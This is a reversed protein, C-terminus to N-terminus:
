LDSSILEVLIACQDQLFHRFPVASLGRSEPPRYSFHSIGMPLERDGITQLMQMFYKLFLSKVKRSVFWLQTEPIYIVCKHDSRMPWLPQLIEELVEIYM